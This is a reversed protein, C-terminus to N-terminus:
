KKARDSAAADQKELQHSLATGENNGVQGSYVPYDFIQRGPTIDHDRYFRSADKWLTREHYYDKARKLGLKQRLSDKHLVFAARITYGWSVARQIALQYLCFALIVAAAMKALSVVWLFRSLLVDVYALEAGFVLTIVTMNLLFDLLSKESEVFSAYGSKELIPMLFPWFTIADIGYLHGPYEEAAAIANGLRTPLIRWTQHHPYMWILEANFANRMMERERAKMLFGQKVEKCSSEEALKLYETAEQDLRQIQEQLYLVRRYNSARLRKGIGWSLLPYGEFFRIIPINLVALVYAGLLVLFVVVVTIPISAFPERERLIQFLQTGELLPWVFAINLGVLILSPLVVSSLRLAQLFLAALDSLTEISKIPPLPQPTSRWIFM